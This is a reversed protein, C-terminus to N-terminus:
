YGQGSPGYTIRIETRFSKKFKLHNTIKEFVEKPVQIALGDLKILYGHPEIQEFCEFEVNMAAQANAM